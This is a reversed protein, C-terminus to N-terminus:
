SASGREIAPENSWGAWRARPRRQFLEIRSTEDLAPYMRELVEYVRDPKDSHRGRPSVIVSSPRDAPAPVPWSGRAAVLLLEHQQRFYYGMGIQQKNWVACTRYDFRWAEVVQMAERVKPSTAWLFLVGDAAAPVELACIDELAMTPYHNEIARSETEIHEYRWPPDAYILRFLGPPMSPAPRDRRIQEREGLRLLNVTVRETEAEVRARWERILHEFAELSVAAFKRARDALHKDIGAEALTPPDTPRTHVRHDSKKDGGGSALGVSEKQAAILEGVRREARIRIEAADMELAKNKAQRAYTRMADAANRIEKVDDIIKATALAQGLAWCAADYRVLETAM